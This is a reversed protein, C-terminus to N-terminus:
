EVLKMMTEFMEGATLNKSKALERFAKQAEKSVGRVFLISTTATKKPAPAVKIKKM